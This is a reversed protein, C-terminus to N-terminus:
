GMLIGRMIHGTTNSKLWVNVSDIERDILYSDTDRSMFVDVFSDGIPLFRWMMKHMYSMDIPKNLKEKDLNLDTTFQDINCFDIIEGYQCELRCRVDNPTSSDHYVRSTYNPYKTQIQIIIEELSQFYQSNSGYLSYSIVKQHKGRRLVNYLDCTKTLKKIEDENLTYQHHREIEKLSNSEKVINISYLKKNTISSLENLSPYYIEVLIYETYNNSCECVPKLKIIKPSKNFIFRFKKLQFMEYIIIVLSVGLIVSKLTSKIKLKM